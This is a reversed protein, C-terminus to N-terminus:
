RIEDNPEGFDKYEWLAESIYGERGKNSAEVIFSNTLLISRM